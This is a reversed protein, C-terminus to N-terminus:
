SLLVSRSKVPDYAVADHYGRDILRRVHDVNLNLSGLSGGLDESPDFRHITLKRYPKGETIRRHIRGATRLFGRIDEETLPGGSGAREMVEIGGNIACATRIDQNIAYASRVVRTRDFIDVSSQLRRREIRRIDPGMYIVHLTRATGMAPLIPSNQLTGGNVYLEDGISVHPFFTPIAASALIARHGFVAAIEANDFVRIEGSDFDTGVVKLTKKSRALAELPIIDMLLNAFPRLDLLTALNLTELIRHTASGSSNFLRRGGDLWERLFILAM